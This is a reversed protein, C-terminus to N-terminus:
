LTEEEEEEVQPEAGPTLGYIEAQVFAEFEGRLVEVEKGFDPKTSLWDSFLLKRKVAESGGVSSIKDVQEVTFHVMPELYFEKMKQEFMPEDNQYQARLYEKYLFDLASVPSKRDRADVYKDWLTDPHEFIFRKGFKLTVEDKEDLGWLWRAMYRAITQAVGEASESFRHLATDVPQVDIFRGTATNSKEEELHTGIIALEMKKELKELSAEAKDWYDIPPSTYGAVNPAIVPDDGLRPLPLHIGDSVDSKIKYGSGGCSSCTVAVGETDKVEGVGKCKTCKTVYQWYKPYAHLFKFISLVSSERLYEKLLDSVKDFFSRRGETRKDVIDSVLLAPVFGKGHNLVGPEEETDYSKLENNDIYYLNDIQHDIVRYVQVEKEGQGDENGIVRKGVDLILYEFKDWIVLYDRVYQVSKYTPYAIKGESDSEILIVGNPDTVYAELWYDEVWKVLSIDSPLASLMTAFEENRSEAGLKIVQSGGSASFAKHFPKLLRDIVDKPSRAVKTRLDKQQQNEYSNIKEIEAAVDGGNFYLDFTEQASRYTELHANQPKEIFDKIQEPTLIM